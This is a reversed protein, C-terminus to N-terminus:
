IEKVKEDIYNVVNIMIMIIITSHNNDENLNETQSINYKNM